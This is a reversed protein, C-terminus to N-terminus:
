LQPQQISFMFEGLNGAYGLGPLWLMSFGAGHVSLSTFEYINVVNGQANLATGAARHNFGDFPSNVHLTEVHGDADSQRTLTGAVDDVSLTTYAATSLVPWAQMDIYAGINWNASHSGVAAAANARAPTAIALSGDGSVSVLMREGSGPQYVYYRDTWDETVDHLDFGGGDHPSLVYTDNNAACDTLLPCGQAASVGGSADLTFFSSGPAYTATAPSDAADNSQGFSMLAYSGRLDAITHAQEPFALGIRWTGDAAVTRVIGVGAPSVVLDKTRGDGTPATFHCTGVATWQEVEGNGESTAQLTAADVDEVDVQDDPSSSYYPGITRYRGSRLAPCAAAPTSVLGAPALTPESSTPATAANSSAAVATALTPWDTGVAALRAQLAVLAADYGSGSGPQLAGGLPDTVAAPDLGAAIMLTTTYLTADSVAAAGAAAAATADFSAFWQAPDQGALRAVLLETMPTLNAHVTTHEAGSALGHWAKGDADTAELACPLSATAPLTLAFAGNADTTASASGAACHASVTANALAAGTAAVGAVQTAAPPPPPSQPPASTGDGSGGCATLSAATAACAAALSLVRLRSPIAHRESM